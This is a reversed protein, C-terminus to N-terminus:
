PAALAINASGKGRGEPPRSFHLEGGWDGHFIGLRRLITRAFPSSGHYMHTQRKPPDWAVNASHARPIGRDGEPKGVRVAPTRFIRGAATSATHSNSAGGAGPPQLRANM